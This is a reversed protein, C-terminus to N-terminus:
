DRRVYLHFGGYIASRDALLLEASREREYRWPALVSEPLSEELPSPQAATRFIVRAGPRATRGIERWLAELQAPSMWDQADLLVYRDLSADEQTALFDTMSALRVSVRGVRDRLPEYCEPRLYDPVARRNEGDYRRGFAQWAFYNDEIDFDCALRRVRERYLHAVNGGAERRIAEFQAPPIGLSYLIMPIDCFARVLRKDFLPAVVQEFIRSQEARSTAGLLRSPRSGMLRAWRHLLGVYTGLLGHRYLGDAFYRIRKRLMFNRREWYARTEPDLHPSISRWYADKNEPENAAGFFRFFSEYDPLHALAALKLRALAVHAPNLDVAIVQEPNAVLYNLLNCGGSAITVVRSKPGIELAALDVRPDEWIQNYVLRAFWLTFLRELLGARTGLASNHVAEKLLRNSM